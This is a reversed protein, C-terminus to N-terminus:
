CLYEECESISLEPYLLRALINNPIIKKINHYEERDAWFNWCHGDKNSRNHGAHGKIFNDFEVTPSEGEDIYVVTGKDGKKYHDSGIIAVVRDGVKYKM